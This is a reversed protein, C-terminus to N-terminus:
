DGESRRISRVVVRGARSTEAETAATPGALAGVVGVQEPDQPRSWECRTRCRGGRAQVSTAITTQTFLGLGRTYGCARVAREGGPHSQLQKISRLNSM